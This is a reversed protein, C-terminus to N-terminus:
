AVKPESGQADSRETPHLVLLLFTLGGSKFLLSLERRPERRCLCTRLGAHSKPHQRLHLKTYRDMTLNRYEYDVIWLLFIM